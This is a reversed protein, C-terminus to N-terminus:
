RAVLVFRPTVGVLREVIPLDNREAWEVDALRHLRPTSWGADVAMAALRGPHTGSGLPLERRMGPDYEAHHEPPVKRLQRLARRVTSRWREVPDVEGWLSEVLVLRGGPPVAARWAKLAASPDPLTWLLHREMVADYGGAPPQTAPGNVTEIDLQFTEARARLRELMGASLDLATVRHGLRAALLSLFGTGAGCDLVRAPAPPLVAELAAAWAAEVMPSRPRHQRSDDYTPADEDWYRRIDDLLAM